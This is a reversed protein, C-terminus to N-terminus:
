GDLRAGAWGVGAGIEVRSYGLSFPNGLQLSISM